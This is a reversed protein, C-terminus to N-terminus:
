LFCIFHRAIVAESGRHWNSPQASGFTVDRGNFNEIYNGGYNNTQRNIGPSLGNIINMAQLIQPSTEAIERLLAEILRKNEAPHEQIARLEAPTVDDYDEIAKIIRQVAQTHSVPQEQLYAILQQTVQRYDIQSM